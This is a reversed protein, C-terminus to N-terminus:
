APSEMQCLCAELHELTSASHRDANIAALSWLSLGAAKLVDNADRGPDVTFGGHICGTEVSRIELKMGCRKLADITNRIAVVWGDSVQALLWESRDYKNWIVQGSATLRSLRNLISLELQDRTLSM